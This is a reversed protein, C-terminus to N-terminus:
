RSREPSGRPNLFQTQVRRHRVRPIDAMLCGPGGSREPDARNSLQAPGLPSRAAEIVLQMRLREQNTRALEWMAETATDVDDSLLEGRRAESWGASDAAREVLEPWSGHRGLVKAM